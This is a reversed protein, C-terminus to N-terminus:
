PLGFRLMPFPGFGPQERYSLIRVLGCHDFGFPVEDRPELAVILQLVYNLLGGHSVVLARGDTDALLRGVLARSDRVRAMFAARSEGGPASSGSAALRAVVSRGTAFVQPHARRAAEFDLGALAGVSGEALCPELEIELGRGLVLVRATAVARELPSSYCSVFETGALREALARAQALGRESLSEDGFREAQAARDEAHRV